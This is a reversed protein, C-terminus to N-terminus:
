ARLLAVAGIAVMALACAMQGVWWLGFAHHGATPCAVSMATLLVGAGVAAVLGWRRRALLGATMLGLVTFFAVSLVVGIVPVPASTRPELAAGISFLVFFSAAVLVGSAGDIREGLWARTSVPEAAEVPPSTERQLQEDATLM